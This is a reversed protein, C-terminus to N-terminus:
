QQLAMNQNGRIQYVQSGDRKLMQFNRLRMRINLSRQNSNSEGNIRLVLVFFEQQTDIFPQCLQSMLFLLTNYTQRTNLHPCNILITKQQIKFIFILVKLFISLDYTIEQCLLFNIDILKQIHIVGEFNFFQIFCTSMALTDRCELSQISPQHM